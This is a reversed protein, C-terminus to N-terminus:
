PCVELFFFATDASSADGVESQLSTGSVTGSFWGTLAVNSGVFGVGTGQLTGCVPFPAWAQAGASNLATVQVGQGLPGVYATQGSAPDVALATVSTTGLVQSWVQEAGGDPSAGLAVAFTGGSAPILPIETVPGASSGAAAQDGTGAFSTAWRLAGLSTLSAVFISPGNGNGNLPHGNGLQLQGTFNGTVYVNDASDIAVGTPRDGPTGYSNTWGILGAPTIQTVVVGLTSDNGAFLINQHSDTALSGATPSSGLVTSFTCSGDAAALRAVFATGAQYVPVCGTSAPSGADPTGGDPVMSTYTGAVIVDGTTADIASALFSAPLKTNWKFGFGPDLEVVFVAGTGGNLTPTGGFPLNGQFNGAMVVDGAGDFLLSPGSMTSFNGWQATTGACLSSAGPSGCAASDGTDADGTGADGADDGGADADDAGADPAGGGSSSSSSSSSSTAGGTGADGGIGGDGCSGLDTCDTTSACGGAQVVAALTLAAAPAFIWVLKKNM